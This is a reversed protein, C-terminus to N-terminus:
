SAHWINPAAQAAGFIVTLLSFEYYIFTPHVGTALWSPREDAGSTYGQLRCTQKEIFDNPSM